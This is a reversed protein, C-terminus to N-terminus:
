VFHPLNTVQPRNTIPGNILEAEECSGFGAGGDCGACYVGYEEADDMAIAGEGRVVGFL